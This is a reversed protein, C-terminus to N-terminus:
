LSESSQTEAGRWRGEDYVIAGAAKFHNFLGQQIEPQSCLWRVAQSRSINFAEGPRYHDLLPMTRAVELAPNRKVRGSEKGHM